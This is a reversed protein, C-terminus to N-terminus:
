NINGIIDYLQKFDKIRFNQLYENLAFCEKLGFALENGNQNHSFSGIKNKLVFSTLDKHKILYIEFHFDIGDIFVFLDYDYNHEHRFQVVRFSMGTKIEYFINNKKIDGKKDLQSVKNGLVFSKVINQILPGYKQSSFTLSNYILLEINDYNVLTEKIEKELKKNNKNRILSFCEEKNHM